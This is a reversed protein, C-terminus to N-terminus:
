SLLTAGLDRECASIVQKVATDVEEGTLTRQLSQFHLSLLVRKKDAGDKKVDRYIEQFQVDQLLEGANTQCTSSLKAWSLAEEVVFNLDRVIAPFSSVKVATRVPKLAQTLVEVSLEAIAVPADLSFAAQLKADALGCYGLLQDEIKICLGSSSALLDHSFEQWDVVPEPGVVQRILSELIGRMRRLEGECVFGLTSQEAPLSGTENGPQYVNAVEYLEANRQSQKQNHYRCALLSPVIGRRLLKCGKLLPIDVSLPANKCWFSGFQEATESVVSPTMAEDIGYSSFVQRAIKMATDKPRPAVVGIPVLANEPIQDYGHMRAVEEILDCERTLDPRWSPPLVELEDAKTVVECGLAVLIESARQQEIEIGLVRPIQNMRLTVNQPEQASDGDAVVGECLKGGAIELILQCCRRSAWDLGAPDPTREFRYSSPSDLKLKRSTRRISLPAFRAAEILLDTTTESVESDVGGMVGGLAVAREADAIVVMQGDLIYKKHDIAEFEEEAEAARIIIKGGRVQALDFAHLPQCCEFMVYNTIDVVNNVSNVGIAALRRILWDPSPGVKVGRIVRATYEPCGDTFQNEVKLLESVPVDSAELECTPVTLPQGLLVSAERAVGIHGLCDGRNSTVELDIVTDSGVQKTGEHNLGSMAFQLALDDANAQKLNVYQELWEWCVLM